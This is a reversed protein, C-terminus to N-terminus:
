IRLKHSALPKACLDFARLFPFCSYLYPAYLKSLPLLSTPASAALLHCVHARLYRLIARSAEKTYLKAKLTVYFIKGHKRKKIQPSCKLKDRFCADDGRGEFFPLFFWRRRVVLPPKWFKWNKLCAANAQLDWFSFLHEDISFQAPDAVRLWPFGYSPNLASFQSTPKNVFGEKRQQTSRRWCLLM